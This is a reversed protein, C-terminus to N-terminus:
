RENLVICVYTCLLYRAAPNDPSPADPDVMSLLYKKGAEAEWQITPENKVDSMEVDVGPHIELNGFKVQLEKVENWQISSEFGLDKVIKAKKLGEYISM